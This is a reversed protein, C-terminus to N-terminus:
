EKEQKDNLAIWNLGFLAIFSISPILWYFNFSFVPLFFSMWFPMLLSVITFLYFGFLIKRWMLITGLIALGHLGIYSVYFRISLGKLDELVPAKPTVYILFLLGLLAMIIILSWIFSAMCIMRLFLSPNKRGLILRKILRLNRLIISIEKTEETM